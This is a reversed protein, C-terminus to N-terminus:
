NGSPAEEAAQGEETEKRPKKSTKVGDTQRM